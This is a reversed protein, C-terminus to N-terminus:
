ALEGCDVRPGIGSRQRALDNKEGWGRSAGARSPTEFEDAAAPRDAVGIHAEPIPVSMHM